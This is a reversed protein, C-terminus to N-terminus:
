KSSRACSYCKSPLRNDPPAMFCERGTCPITTSRSGAPKRSSSVPFEEAITVRIMPADTGLGYRTKPPGAHNHLFIASRVESACDFRNEVRCAWIRTAGPSLYALDADPFDTAGSGPHGESEQASFDQSPSTPGGGKRKQAGCRAECSIAGFRTAPWDRSSPM